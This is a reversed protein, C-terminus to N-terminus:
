HWEPLGLNKRLRNDPFIDLNPYLPKQPYKNNIFGFKFRYHTGESSADSDLTINLEGDPAYQIAVVSFRFNASVTVNM